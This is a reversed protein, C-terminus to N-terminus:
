FSFDVLIPDHDSSRRADARYAAPPHELGYGLLEPEDANIHWIQANTLLRALSDSALAHDLQTARGEFAYSYRAEAPVGDFLNAFGARQLELLPAELADSNFDGILLMNGPEPLAAVAAALARAEALRTEAGCGEPGVIQEAGNCLKSKLHVAGVSLRRGRAEFSQFLPARQFGPSSAFWAPGIPRVRGGRYAIASRIVDSGDAGSESVSYALESPLEADLASILDALSQAPAPSGSPDPVESELESLALIDADLQRLVAVLKARQRALELESRAGRAGLRVFYNDLNLAAVRLAAASPARPVPPPTARFDVPETALLAPPSGSLVVATLERARAGLRLHESLTGARLWARATDAMGELTWSVRETQSPGLPHGPAYSRGAPSIALEARRELDSSDLLTWDARARIWMGEWRELDPEGGLEIELPSLQARGCPELLEVSALATVGGLEQVSGRVRLREGPAPADAGDLAVFLGSSRESRAEPAEAQLFFGAHAAIQAAAVSVSGEIEVRQNLLPSRAGSGQLEAIDLTTEACQRAPPESLPGCGLGLLFTCVSLGSLPARARRPRAPLRLARPM